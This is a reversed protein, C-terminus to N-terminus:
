DIRVTPVSASRTGPRPQNDQRHYGFVLSYKTADTRNWGAAHFTMAHFFVVDGPELEPFVASDILTRNEPIDDRLFALNEFREPAINMKHTGPLFGLCGNERFEKGLALWVSVLNSDEFNWYRIDRHWHTVSSFTPQKTMLSNHHAQTLAIHPTDLLQKVRSTVAENLAWARFADDRAFVQLLRRVTRGGAAERNAPAGPYNTDAELEVPAIAQALHEHGVRLIAERLATDALNRVVLFGQDHFAALDAHSLPAASM